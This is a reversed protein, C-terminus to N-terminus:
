PKSLLILFKCCNRSAAGFILCLNFKNKRKGWTKLKEYKDLKIKWGAFMTLVEIGESAMPRDCYEILIIVFGIMTSAGRKDHTLQFKRDFVLRIPILLSVPGQRFDASQVWYFGNDLSTSNAGRNFFINRAELYVKLPVQRWCYWANVQNEILQRERQNREDKKVFLKKRLEVEFM